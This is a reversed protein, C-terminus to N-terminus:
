KIEEKTFDKCERRCMLEGNPKFEATIINLTDVQSVTRTHLATKEYVSLLNKITDLKRVQISM